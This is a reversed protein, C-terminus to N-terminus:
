SYLRRVGQRNSPLVKSIVTGPKSFPSFVRRKRSEGPSHTWLLLLSVVSCWCWGLLPIWQLSILLAPDQLWRWRAWHGPYLIQSYVEWPQLQCQTSQSQLLTSLYSNDTFAPSVNKKQTTKLFLHVSSDLTRLMTHLSSTTRWYRNGEEEMTIFGGTKLHVYSWSSYLDWKGSARIPDVSGLGHPTLLVTTHWKFPTALVRRGEEQCSCSRLSNHVM